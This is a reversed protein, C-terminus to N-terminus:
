ETVLKEFLLVEITLMVVAFAVLFQDLELVGCHCRGSASRREGGFNFRADGPLDCLCVSRSRARQGCDGVAADGGASDSPVM